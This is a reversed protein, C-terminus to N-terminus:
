GAKREDGGRRRGAVLGLAIGVALCAVIVIILPARTKTVIFNVKVDDLNLLAFLVALAGLSIMVIQRTQERKSRPTDGSSVIPGKSSEM